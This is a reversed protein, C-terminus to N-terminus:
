ALVVFGVREAAKEIELAHFLPRNREIWTTAGFGPGAAAEIGKHQDLVFRETASGQFQHLTQSLRAAGDIVRQGGDFGVFLEFARQFEVRGEGEFEFRGAAELRAHLHLVQLRALLVHEASGFNRRMHRDASTLRTM